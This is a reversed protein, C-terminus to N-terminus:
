KGGPSSALPNSKKKSGASREEPDALAVREGGNLGKTIEVQSESRRGTNVELRQFNSGGKALYVWKKGEKEIVAQQPVFIANPVKETTIVVEGSLGPRLRPDNGQPGVQLEFVGEFTKTPSSDWDRGNIGGLSKVKGQLPLDPLADLHITM